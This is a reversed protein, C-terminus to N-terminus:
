TLVDDIPPQDARQARTAEHINFSSISAMAFDTILEVFQEVASALFALVKFVDTV